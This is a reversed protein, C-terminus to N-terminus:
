FKKYLSCVRPKIAKIIDRGILWGVATESNKIEWPMKDKIGRM